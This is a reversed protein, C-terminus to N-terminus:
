TPARRVDEHKMKVTLEQLGSRRRPDPPPTPQPPVRPRVGNRRLKALGLSTIVMTLNLEEGRIHALQIAEAKSLGM